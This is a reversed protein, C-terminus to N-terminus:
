EEESEAPEAAPDRWPGGANRPVLQLTEVRRAQRVELNLRLLPHPEEQLQRPTSAFFHRIDRIQHSQDFFRLRLDAEEEEMAVGLLAAALDLARARRMVQKPALGYDRRVIRELTRSSIGQRESFATLPASPDILTFQEFDRVLPDPPRTGYRAIFRRLEAEFISIWVSPRDRPDFRSSFCGHGVLEDYDVARDMMELQSPTGLMTAGGAAMQATIVKFAGRVNLRMMRSQPGFYLTRGREGAAFRITGDITEVTWEGGFVVRLCAHDNLIGDSIALDAPLEADSANFWTFWPALDPSPARNLALPQGDRTRGTRSVVNASGVPVELDICM